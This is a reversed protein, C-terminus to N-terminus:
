PNFFSSVPKARPDSKKKKKSKDEKEECLVCLMQAM